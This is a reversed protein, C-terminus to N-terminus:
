TASGPPLAELFVEVLGHNELMAVIEDVTLLEQQSSEYGAPPQELAEAPVPKFPEVRYHDHAESAHLAEEPTMLAEYLKEGPLLGVQTVEISEPTHGFRPAYSRILATILDGIRLVPMKLIFIEGGHALLTAKLALQVAQPISMFFRRM